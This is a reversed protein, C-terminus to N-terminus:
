QVGKEKLFSVPAQPTGKTFAAVPFIHLMKTRSVVSVTNKTRNAAYVEGIMRNCWFAPGSVRVDVTRPANSKILFIESCTWVSM